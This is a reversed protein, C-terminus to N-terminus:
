CAIRSFEGNRYFTSWTYNYDKYLSQNWEMTQPEMKVSNNMAENVVTCVAIINILASGCEMTHTHLGCM